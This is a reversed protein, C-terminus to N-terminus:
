GATKTFSNELCVKAFDSAASITRSENEKCLEAPCSTTKPAPLPGPSLVYPCYPKRYHPSMMLLPPNPCILSFPFDESGQTHMSDLVEKEVM